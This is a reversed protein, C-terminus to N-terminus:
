SVKRYEGLAAIKENTKEAELIKDIEVRLCTTKTIWVKDLGPQPLPL